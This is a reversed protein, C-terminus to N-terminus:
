GAISTRYNGHIVGDTNVMPILKFMCTERLYQAIASSGTIFSILGEM